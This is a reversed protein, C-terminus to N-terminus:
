ILGGARFGAKCGALMVARQMASDGSGGWGSDFTVGASDFADYLAASEKHYGYGGASGHGGMHVGNRTHIWVSAYVTSAQSSRGMYIRADIVTTFRMAALRDPYHRYYEANSGGGRIEKLAAKFRPSEAIWRIRTITEKGNALNKANNAPNATNFKKITFLQSM